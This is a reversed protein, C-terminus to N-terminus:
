KRAIIKFRNIFKIQMEVQGFVDLLNLYSDGRESSFMPCSLFLQIKNEFSDPEHCARGMLDNEHLYWFNSKVPFSFSRLSFM